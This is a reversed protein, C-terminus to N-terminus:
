LTGALAAARAQAEQLLGEVDAGEIDLGDAAVCHFTGLGFFQTLARLYPTGQELPDDGPYLGGRTVLYVCDTARCLGQLGSATSRFTMGEVSINEIYAKLLAPFSLDWFPAAFVVLEAQAFQRAPAFGAADLRGSKLLAEREQFRQGWLPQFSEEMLNLRTVRCDKPLAALFAEALRRTRSLEGRVCSDVFLVDRM